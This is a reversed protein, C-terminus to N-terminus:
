QLSLQTSAGGPHVNDPRFAESFIQRRQILLCWAVILIGVYVPWDGFRTYISRPNIDDYCIM